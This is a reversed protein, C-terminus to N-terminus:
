SELLKVSVEGRQLLEDIYIPLLYDNHVGSVIIYYGSCCKIYDYFYIYSNKWKLIDYSKLCFWRNM